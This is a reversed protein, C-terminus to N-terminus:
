HPTLNYQNIMRRLRPRSVCLIECTKGKHWGTSELIKAVHAKEMDELSCELVPETQSFPTLELM